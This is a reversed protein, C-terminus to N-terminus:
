RRAARWWARKDQPRRGLPRLGPVAPVAEGWGSRHPLPVLAVDLAHRAARWALLSEAYLPRAMPAYHPARACHALREGDAVLAEWAAREEARRLALRTRDIAAPTARSTRATARDM